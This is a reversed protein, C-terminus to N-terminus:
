APEYAAIIKTAPPKTGGTWTLAIGVYRRVATTLAFYLARNTSAPTVTLAPGIKNWNRNQNGGNNSDFFQAVVETADDWEIGDLMVCFAGGPAHEAGQDLRFDIYPRIIPGAVRTGGALLRADPHVAVGAGAPYYELDVFSFDDPNTEIARSRVGVASVITAGAGNKAGERGIISPWPQQPVGALFMKRLSVEEPGLYGRETMTWTGSGIPEVHDIAGLPGVLDIAATKAELRDALTSVAGVGALDYGGLWHLVDLPGYSM